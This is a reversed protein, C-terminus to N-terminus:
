VAHPVNHKWSVAAVRQLVREVVHSEVGSREVAGAVDLGLDQTCVLTLDADSYTFGLEQEDTQGGWLGATPHKTIVGEPLGLIAAAHRVETKYLDSIPEVDSAADGFRTFYGLYYESRNETGVVLGDAEQAIDYILIMRSRASANGFRLPSAHVTPRAGAIGELVPEISITLMNEAPLSVARATLEADDLHVQETHRSPLRAAIVNEPGLAKAALGMSVASDIGGSLGIVARTRGAAAFVDRLQEVKREVLGALEDQGRLLDTTKSDTMLPAGQPRDAAPLAAAPPSDPPDVSADAVTARGAAVRRPRPRRRRAAPRCRACRRAARTRAAADGALGRRTPWDRRRRRRPVGPPARSPDVEWGGAEDGSARRERGAQIRRGARPCRLQDGVADRRRVRRDPRRDLGLRRDCARRPRRLRLDATDGMGEEDLIARVETALTAVNGSDLRVFRPVVGAARSAEAARRAGRVPDYTDILLAATDGHERLFETFADVESAFGMVYSHAMTGSTPIDWLMGAAVTATAVCGGIYAARAALLGADPGHARRFGFDVVPRGAAAEVMRAAKTAILTEFNVVNLLYTEVLQCILRGGDVRLLPEGAHVVTGEPIADLDGDFRQSALRELLPPPCIGSRELYALAEPRFALDHLYDVVQELGAALLYGRDRPLERVSLEFAVRDDARGEALYSAAMTLEYRDILLEVPAAALTM